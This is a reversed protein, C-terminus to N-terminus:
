ESRITSSPVDRIVRSVFREGDLVAHVAPVLDDGAMRKLVYGSAGAAFGCAVLTPDGNVTVLVIRVDPQSEHILFTAEIGDLGPMAIDTVVVDPTLQGTVKVLAVGDALDAVIDFDPTLLARLLQRTGAHDDALVLRPRPSLM